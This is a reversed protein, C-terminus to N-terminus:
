DGQMMKQLRSRMASPMFRAAFRAREAEKGAMYHVDKGHAAEWARQAAVSVPYIEVKGDKLNDRATRNGATTMDLIPTDIFWPMLSTVRVGYRSFELDLAETLGRVAFKTASYVALKPTGYVGAVSSTNVIRGMNSERLLPLAAYCGNIVGKINVDVILDADDQNVDEFWGSRAVGANNFLVHMVGGTAEGFYRVARQWGARDRVDFVNSMRRGEPLLAVTEELGAQDVDFAGVFYGRQAFLLATARGIGSGAGTVFITKQEGKAV